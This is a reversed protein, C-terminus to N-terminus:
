DFVTTVFRQNTPQYKPQSTIGVVTHTHTYLIYSARCLAPAFGSSSVTRYMCVKPSASASDTGSFDFCISFSNIFVGM